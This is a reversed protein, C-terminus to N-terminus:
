NFLLIGVVAFANVLRGGGGMGESEGDGGRTWPEGGGVKEISKM